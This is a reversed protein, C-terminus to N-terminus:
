VGYARKVVRYDYEPDLLAYYNCVEIADELSPYGICDKFRVHHSDRYNRQLFYRTKEPVYVVTDKVM